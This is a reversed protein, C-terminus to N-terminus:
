LPFYQRGVSTIAAKGASCQTVKNVTDESINMDAAAEIRVDCDYSINKIHAGCKLLCQTVQSALSYACSVTLIDCYVYKKCEALDLTEAVCGAYASVLGSAGLKIGGFYRTVVALINGAGRKRLVELIPAGATGQPEGDDSQKIGDSTIYAYCNHTADSYKKKLRKIEEQAREASDVPILTTIFVSRQINKEAAFEETVCIYPEYM